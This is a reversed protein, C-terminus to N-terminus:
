NRRLYCKVKGTGACQQFFICSCVHLIIMALTHFSTIYIYLILSKFLTLIEYNCFLTFIEYNCLIFGWLNIMGIYHVFLSGRTPFSQLLISLLNPFKLM